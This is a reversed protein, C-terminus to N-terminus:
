RLVIPYKFSQRAKKTKPFQAAKAAKEVCTGTPTGKFDGIDDVSVVTGDAAVTVKLKGEGPVGYKEFCKDAADRVPAMAAKIQDASLEDPLEPATETPKVSGVNGEAVTDGCAAHDIAAPESKPSACVIGGDCPDYVRFGVIAVAIGKWGKEATWAHTKSVDIVLETALRPAVKTKWTAAADETKFARGTVHIPTPHLGGDDLVPKEGEGIVYVKDGDIELPDVCAICGAVSIPSSQKKEDWAGISFASADGAVILRKGAAQRALADRVARCQRKGLEDGSDCKATLSWVIGALTARDVRTAGKAVSEFTDDARASRAACAIAVVVLIRRM